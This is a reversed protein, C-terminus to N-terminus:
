RERRLKDLIILFETILISNEYKGKVSNLVNELCNIEEKTPLASRKRFKISYGTVVGYSYSDCDIIYPVITDIYEIIVALEYLRDSM